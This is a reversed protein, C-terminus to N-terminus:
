GRWRGMVPNTTTMTNRATTTTTRASRYMNPPVIDAPPLFTLHCKLMPKAPFYGAEQASISGCLAGLGCLFIFLLWPTEGFSDKREEKRPPKNTKKTGQHRRPEINLEQGM